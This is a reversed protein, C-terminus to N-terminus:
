SQSLSRAKERNDFLSPHHAASWGWDINVSDQSENVVERSKQEKEEKLRKTRASRSRNSASAASDSFRAAPLSSNTMTQMAHPSWFEADDSDDDRAVTSPAPPRSKSPSQSLSRSPVRMSNASSVHRPGRPIPLASSRGLSTASSAGRLYQGSQNQPPTVSLSVGASARRKSLAAAGRRGTGASAARSHVIEQGAAKTTLRAQQFATKRDEAAITEPDLDDDSDDDSDSGHAAKGGGKEEEEEEEEEEEDDSESFYGWGDWVRGERPRRPRVGLQPLPVVHHGRVDPRRPLWDLPAPMSYRPDVNIRRSETSRPSKASVIRNRSSTAGSSSTLSTNSKSGSLKPTGLHPASTSPVMGSSASITTTTSAAPEPTPSDGRRYESQVLTPTIDSGIAPSPMPTAEPSVVAALVNKVEPSVEVNTLQLSSSRSERIAHGGEVRRGRPPDSKGKSRSGEGGPSPPFTPTSVVGAGAGGAATAKHKDKTAFLSGVREHKTKSLVAADKGSASAGGGGSGTRGMERDSNTDKSGSTSVVLEDSSSRRKVGKANANALVHEGLAAVEAEHRRRIIEARELTLGLGPTSAKSSITPWHGGDKGASSGAGTFAGSAMASTETPATTVKGPTIGGPMQSRSSPAPSRQVTAAPNLATLPALTSGGAHAKPTSHPTVTTDGDGDSLGARRDSSAGVTSLSGRRKQQQKQLIVAPASLGGQQQESSSVYEDDNSNNNSSRALSPAMETSDTSSSARLAEAEAYKRKVEEASGAASKKEIRAAIVESAPTISTTDADSSVAASDAKVSEEPLAQSMAAPVNTTGTGTATGTGTGATTANSANIGASRRALGAFGWQSFDFEEDFASYGGAGHVGSKDESGLTANDVRRAPIKTGDPLTVMGTGGPRVSRVLKRRRAREEDDTFYDIERERSRGSGRSGSRRRSRSSARSSSNRATLSPRGRERDDGDTDGIGFFSMFGGGGGSSQSGLSGVFNSNTSPGSAGSSVVHSGNSTSAVSSATSAGGAAVTAGKRAIENPTPVAGTSLRRTLRGGSADDADGAGAPLGAGESAGTRRRSSDATGPRRRSKFVGAPMGMLYWKGKGGGSLRRRWTDDGEGMEEMEGDAARDGGSQRVTGAASSPPVGSTSSGARSSDESDLRPIRPRKRSSSVSSSSGGAPRVLPIPASSSAVHGSSSANAASDFSQRMTSAGSGGGNRVNAGAHYTGTASRRGETGTHDGGESLSLSLDDREDMPSRTHSSGPAGDAALSPSDLDRQSGDETATATASSRRRNEAMAAVVDASRLDSGGESGWEAAVTSAQDDITLTETAGDSDALHQQAQPDFVPSVVDDDGFGGGSISSAAVSTVSAPAGASLPVDIPPPLPLPAFRIRPGNRTSFPSHPSIASPSSAAHMADSGQGQHRHHHHHHPAVGSSATATSIISMTSSTISEPHSRNYRHHSEASQAGTSSSGLGHEPQSSSESSFDATSALSSATTRAPEEVLPQDVIFSPAGGAAPPASVVSSAANMSSRRPRPPGISGSALAQAAAMSRRTNIIANLAALEEPDLREEEEAEQSRQKERERQRIREREREKLFAKSPTSPTGLNTPGGSGNGWGGLMAMQANFNVEPLGLLLARRPIGWIRAELKNREAREKEQEKERERERAERELQKERERQKQTVPAPIRLALPVGNHLEYWELHKRPNDASETKLLISNGSGSGAPAAAGIASASPPLSLGPNVNALPISNSKTLPIMNSKASSPVLASFSGPLVQASARRLLNPNSMSELASACARAAADVSALASAPRERQQKRALMLAANSCSSSPLPETGSDSYNRPRSHAPTISPPNAAESEQPQSEPQSESQPDDRSPEPASLTHTLAPPQPRAEPDLATAM